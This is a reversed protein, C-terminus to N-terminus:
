RLRDSFFEEVFYLTPSPPGGRLNPKMRNRAPQFIVGAGSLRFVGALNNGFM